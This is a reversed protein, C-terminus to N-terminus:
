AGRVALWEATRSEQGSPLRSGAGEGRQREGERGQREEMPGELQVPSWRGAGEPEWRWCGMNEM